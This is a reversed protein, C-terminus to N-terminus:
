KRSKKSSTGKAAAARGTAQGATLEKKPVDLMAESGAGWLAQTRAQTRLSMGFVTIFGESAKHDFLDGKGYTALATSHSSHNVGRSLKLISIM